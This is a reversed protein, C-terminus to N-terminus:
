QNIWIEPPTSYPDKLEKQAEEWTLSALEDLRTHRDGRHGKYMGGRIKAIRTWGNTREFFNEIEKMESDVAANIVRAHTAFFPEVVSEFMYPYKFFYGKIPFANGYKSVHIGSYFYFWKTKFYAPWKLKDWSKEPIHHLTHNIEETQKNYYKKVRFEKNDSYIYHQIEGLIRRLEPADKRRSEADRLVFKKRWGRQVPKALPVLPSSMKLRHLENLKKQKALLEKDRDLYLKSRQKM